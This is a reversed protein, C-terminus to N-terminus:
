CILSETLLILSLLHRPRSFVNESIRFGRYDLIGPKLCSVDVRVLVKGSAADVGTEELSDPVGEWKITTGVVAFAKEM